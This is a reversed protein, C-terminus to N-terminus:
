YSVNVNGGIMQFHFESKKQMYYSIKGKEYQHHFPTQQVDMNMKAPTWETQLEGPTFSIKLSFNGPVNGYQFRHQPSIVKSKAISAIPNGQSEIAGLQEGEATLRAMYQLAEQKGDAAAEAIRQFIHKLDMDAWCQSQDITLQPPIRNTQMEAKQPQMTITTNGPEFTYSPRQTDWGLRSFTQNVELQPFNV